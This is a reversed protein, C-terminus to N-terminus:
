PWRGKQHSSKAKPLMWTILCPHVPVDTSPHWAPHTGLASQLSTRTRTKLDKQHNSPKYSEFKFQKGEFCFLFCRDQWRDGRFYALHAGLSSNFLGASATHTLQKSERGAWDTVAFRPLDPLHFLSNQLKSFEYKKTTTKKRLKEWWLQLKLECLM